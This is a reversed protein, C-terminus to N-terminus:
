AAPNAANRRVRATLAAAESRTLGLARLAAACAADIGGRSLRGDTIALTVERWIGIVLDAALGVDEMALRASAKGDALDVMLNKRVSRDLELSSPLGNLVLRGWGHDEAAKDLFAMLGCVVRELPDTCALRRPTILEDFSEGLDRAVAAALEQLDNFHYYFTGKAVNSAAVVDDVTVGHLPREALLRRAGDILQARTRARKERGIAARRALDVRVV